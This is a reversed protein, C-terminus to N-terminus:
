SRINVNGKHIIKMANIMNKKIEKFSINITEDKKGILVYDWGSKSYYPFVLKSLANLRRKARNRKVANGIKKSCTLGIRVTDNKEFLTMSRKKAKVIVGAKIISKGKNVEKFESSKLLREIKDKSIDM